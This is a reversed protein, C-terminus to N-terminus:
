IIKDREQDKNFKDSDSVLIESKFRSCPMRKILEARNKEVIREIFERWEHASAIERSEIPTKSRIYIANKRLAINEPFAKEKKSRLALKKCIVPQMSESVEIVIFLRKEDDIEAVDSLVRFQINPDCYESLVNSLHDHNFSKFYEESMGKAYFVKEREEVGIVIYGGDKTNSMALVAQIIKWRTEDLSWDMSDKYEINVEESGHNIVEFIESSFM